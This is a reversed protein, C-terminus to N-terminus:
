NNNEFFNKLVELNKIAKLSDSNSYHFILISPQSPFTCIYHTFRM